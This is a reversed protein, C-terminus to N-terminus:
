TLTSALVVMLFEGEAAASLSQVPPTSEALTAFRFVPHHFILSACGGRVRRVLDPESGRRDRRAPPSNLERVIVSDISKFFVM